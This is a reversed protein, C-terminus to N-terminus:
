SNERRYSDVSHLMTILFILFAIPMLWRLFWEIKLLLHCGPARQQGSYVVQFCWQSRSQKGVPDDSLTPKAKQQLGFNVASYSITVIWNFGLCGLAFDKLWVRYSVHPMAAAIRGYNHLAVLMCVLALAVRAPAAQNSIFLGFYSTCVILSSMVIGELLWLPSTRRMTFSHTCFAFTGTSYTVNGVLTSEAFDEWEGLVASLIGPDDSSRFGYVVDEVRDSYAMFTIGCKQDDFPFAHFAFACRLTAVVRRSWTVDGDSTVYFMLEKPNIKSEVANAVYFDPTWVISSEAVSRLDLRDLNYELTLNLDKYSLRPDNWHTRMYMDISFQGNLQDIAFLSQVAISISIPTPQLRMGPPMTSDYGDFLKERLAKESSLSAHSISQSKLLPDSDAFSVVSLAALWLSMFLHTM